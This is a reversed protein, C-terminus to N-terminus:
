RGRQRSACQCDHPSRGELMAGPEMTLPERVQSFPAHTHMCHTPPDARQGQVGLESGDSSGGM